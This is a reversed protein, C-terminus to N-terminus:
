RRPPTVIANMVRWLLHGAWLGLPVYFAGAQVLAFIFHLSVVRALSAGPTVQFAAQITLVVGLVIGIRTPRHLRILTVIDLGVLATNIGILAPWAAHRGPAVLFIWDGVALAAGGAIAALVLVLLFWWPRPARPEVAVPPADGRARQIWAPALALGVVGLAAVISLLVLTVRPGILRIQWAHYIAYGYLDVAICAGVLTAVRRQFPTM